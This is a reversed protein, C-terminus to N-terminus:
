SSKAASKGNGKKPEAEVKRESGAKECADVAKMIDDFVYYPETALDEKKPPDNNKIGNVNNYALIMFILKQIYADAYSAKPTAVVWNCYALHAGLTYMMGYKKGKLEITNEM